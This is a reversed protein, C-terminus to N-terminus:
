APTRLMNVLFAVLFARGFDLILLAIIPSLDIMGIRAWRFPRLIPDVVQKITLFFKNPRSIVWSMLIYLVVSWYLIKLFVDVFLILYQEFM